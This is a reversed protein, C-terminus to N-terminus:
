DSRDLLELANDADRELVMLRLGESSHLGPRWGGCDDGFVAAGIGNAELFSRALEAEERNDYSRICTLEEGATDEQEGLNVQPPSLLEGALPAGCDPCETIGKEYDRGCEPCIM